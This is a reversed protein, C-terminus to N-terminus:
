VSTKLVKMKKNYNTSVIIVFGLVALIIGSILLLKRINLLLIQLIDSFNETILLINEIDVKEVIVFRIFILILSAAILSSGISVTKLGKLIVVFLVIVLVVSVIIGINILKNIRAFSALFSDFTHYLTVEKEYISSIDSVFSKIDDENIVSLNSEKLYKDINDNLKSEIKEKDVNTKQGLYLNDLYNNIDKKVDDITYIDDLISELFGSSVMYNEMEERIDLSVKNYYDNKNVLNYVYSSNYITFKLIVLITLLSVILSCVFGLLYGLIIKIRNSM